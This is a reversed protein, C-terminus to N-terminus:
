FLVRIGLLAVKDQRKWNDGWWGKGLAAFWVSLPTRNFYIDCRIGGGQGHEAFVGADCWSMVRYQARAEYWVNPDSREQPNMECALSFSFLRSSDQPVNCTGRLRWQATDADLGAGLGLMLWSHPMFSLGIIGESPAIHSNDAVRFFIFLINKSSYENWVLPRVDGTIIHAYSPFDRYMRFEGAFFNQSTTRTIDRASRPHASMIETACILFLAVFIYQIFM